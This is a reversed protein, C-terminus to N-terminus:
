MQSTVYTLQHMSCNNYLGLQHPNFESIGQDGEEKFVEKGKPRGEEEL